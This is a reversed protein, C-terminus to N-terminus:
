FNERLCCPACLFKQLGLSSWIEECQQRRARPPPEQLPKSSASPDPRHAAKAMQRGRCTFSEWGLLAENCASGSRCGADWKGKTQPSSGPIQPQLVKFDLGPGSSVLQRPEDTFRPNSRRRGQQIDDPALSSLIFKVAKCVTSYSRTNTLM